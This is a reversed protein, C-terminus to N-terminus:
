DNTVQWVVCVPVAVVVAVKDVSVWAPRVPVTVENVDAVLYRTVEVFM